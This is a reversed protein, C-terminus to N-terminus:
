LSLKWPLPLIQPIATSLWLGTFTLAPASSPATVLVPPTFFLLWGWLLLWEGLPSVALGQCGWLSPALSVSEQGRRGVQGAPEGWAWVWQTGLAWLVEQHRSLSRGPCRVSPLLCSTSTLPLCRQEGQTENMVSRSVSEICKHITTGMELKRHSIAKKYCHGGVCEAFCRCYSM